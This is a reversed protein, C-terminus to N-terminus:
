EKIVKLFAQQGNNNRISIFYLGNAGDIKIDLTQADHYSKREIVKGMSNAIKVEIEAYTNGLEITFKGSTPNPYVMINSGFSNESIGTAIINFCNSTISCGNNTVIVAFSGNVLSTFSQSTKGPVPANGNNCDIWQYTVGTANATLTNGNQTIAPTAPIANVVIPLTSEIGDGCSNHGKVTINGSVASLGYSITISCTTSTGTAGTPLTWIYSNANAIASISYIVSNEGQCVTTNGSITGANAPLPNVTITLTSAAGDGCSNNGKVTIDGSVASLGYDVDISNTTSTGTAGAPLTWICSTADTVPPVTYNVSNQGQCVTTTGSIIGANAPLPNVTITLTSAAGDGCSNNGKVTIDGSVASLGYEVDISNTTSTGTAGTPLTWIYSTADTVPPVTYTVSNQGHCVTTNGSIIGASSPVPNVTLTATNSFISIVPCTSTVVCRFKYGNMTGPANTINVTNTTANSYISNNTIDTFGSGVDVQWQFSLGNGAAVISFSTNSGSCIIADNPSVSINPQACIEILNSKYPSKGHVYDFDLKKSYTTTAPDFEFLVGVSKAGGVQLQVM